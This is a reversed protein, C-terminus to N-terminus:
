LTSVPWELCNLKSVLDNLWSFRLRASISANDHQLLSIYPGKMSQPTPCYLDRNETIRRSGYSKESEALRRFQGGRGQEFEM